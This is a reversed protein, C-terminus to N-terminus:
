PKGKRDNRELFRIMDGYFIEKDAGKLSHGSRPYEAIALDRCMRKYRALDDDTVLSGERLGRAVFVPMALPSELDIRASDRQIGTVAVPRINATASRGRGRFSLAICRAPLAAEALDFYEEATESLGPCIVLPTREPDSEDITDYYHIAIGNHEAHSIRM